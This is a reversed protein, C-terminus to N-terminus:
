NCSVTLSGTGSGRFGGVRVKYNVGATAPFTMISTFGACGAGDDNCGVLQGNNVPCSDAEYAALRTDYDADNCTSITVTGSCSAVYDYWIDNVLVLGFGEECENPLDPGDTTADLTSFATVGDMLPVADACDDNGENGPGACDPNNDSCDACSFLEVIEVCASDWTVECCFSGVDCVCAEVGGDDPTGCVANCGPANHVECCDATPEQACSPAGNGGDDCEGPVGGGLPCAIPENCVGFRALVYGSDLPDILGDCNADAQCNDPDSADLGFRALIFGSDLPDVLGDGNVDGDCLAPSDCCPPVGPSGATVLSVWNCGGLGFDNLDSWDNCNGSGVLNGFGHNPAQQITDLAIFWDAPTVIDRFVAVVWVTSPPDVLAEGIPFNTVENAVADHICGCGTFLINSTDPNGGCDGMLYLDGQDAGGATSFIINVSEITAGDTLVPYAMSIWSGDECLQEGAGEIGVGNDNAIPTCTPIGSYLEDGGGGRSLRPLGQSGLDATSFSPAVVPKMQGEAIASDGCSAVVLAAILVVCSGYAQRKM